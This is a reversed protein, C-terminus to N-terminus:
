RGPLRPPQIGGGGGNGAGASIAPPRVMATPQQIAGPAGSAGGGINGAGPIAANQGGLAAQQQQVMEELAMVDIMFNEVDFVDFSRLIKALLENLATVAKAIAMKTQPPVMPNGFMVTTDVVKQYYGLLMTFLQQQAQQEISKNATTSTQAVEVAIKNLIWDSPFTFVDMVAKGDAGLLGIIQRVPAFQQYVQVTQQWALNMSLRFLRINHDIQRNGEQILSLTGAATARTGVTASEMGLHYDTVGSRREGIDRLIAIAQVMGQSNEGLRFQEVDSVEGNIYLKKMPYIEESPKLAGKKVKIVITNAATSNDIMQNISATLGDQLRELMHGMGIGVVSRKRKKFVFPIYPRQRHAYFHETFKVITESEPHITVIYSKFDNVKEFDGIIYVEYFELKEEPEWTFGIIADLKQILDAQERVLFKKLRDLASKKYAHFPSAIREQVNWWELFFRQALWRSRQIDVTGEPWLMDEISVWVHKPGNHKLLKEYTVTGKVSDFVPVEVEEYVYPIKMFSLGNLTADNILDTLCGETDLDDKQRAAWNLYRQLPEALDEIDKEPRIVRTKVMDPMGLLSSEIRAVTADTDIAVLPAVTNSANKWPFTKVEQDPQAEYQKNWKELKGDFGERAARARRIDDSIMEAAKQWTGEPIEISRVYNRVIKSEEIERTTPM